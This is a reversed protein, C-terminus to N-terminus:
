PQFSTKKLFERKRRFHYLGVCGSLSSLLFLSAAILIEHFRGLSTGAGMLSFIMTQPLGGVLTACAFKWFSLEALGAAVSVLIASGVPLFRLALVSLFPSLRCFEAVQHLKERKLTKQEKSFVLGLFRSWAYTLCAGAEYALTCFLVAHGFGFGLGAAFCLAQRSLGLSCYVTGFLCFWVGGWTTEQWHHAHALYHQVFPVRWLLLPLLLLVGAFFLIKAVDRAM